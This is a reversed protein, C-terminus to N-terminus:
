NHCRLSLGGIVQVIEQGEVTIQAAEVLELLRECERYCFPTVPPIRTAPTPLPLLPHTLPSQHSGSQLLPYPDPQFGGLQLLLLLPLLMESL